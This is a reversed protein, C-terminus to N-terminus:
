WTSIATRKWTNTATCVYIYNADWCIEGTAGTASASAPTRATRVRITDANVDLLTTPSSTGIGVNGSSDIRLRESSNVHLAIGSPAGLNMVGSLGATTSGTTPAASYTGWINLHNTLTTDSDTDGQLMMSLMKATSVNSANRRLIFGPFNWNVITSIQAPTGGGSNLDLTYNPSTTGIGVNGNTDITFVDTESGAVSTSIKFKHDTSTKQGFLWEAVAGGNYLYYRAQGATSPTIRINGITASASPLSVELSTVPASTGIGFRGSSDIRLRETGNTSIAVQDAGPSYIGTNTDGTFKLSPSAASGLALGSTDLKDSNLNIFNQDVEAQTLPSGKGARTVITAM